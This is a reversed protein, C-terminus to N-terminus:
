TQSLRAMKSSVPVMFKSLSDDPFIKLSGFNLLPLPRHATVLSFVENSHFSVMAKDNRSKLPLKGM